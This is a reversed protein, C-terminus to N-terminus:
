PAGLPSASPARAGPHIPAVASAPCRVTTGHVVTEYSEDSAGVLWIESGAPLDADADSCDELLVAATAATRAALVAGGYVLLAVMGLGAALRVSRRPRVIWLLLGAWALAAAASHVLTRHHAIHAAFGPPPYPELGLAARAQELNEKAWPDDPNVAAARRYWLVAEPLRGLHHATTALNYLLVPHPAAANWGELYAAYAPELRGERFLRNGERLAEVADAPAARAASSSWGGAAVLLLVLTGAAIRDTRLRM